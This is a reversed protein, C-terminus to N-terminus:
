KRIPPPFFFSFLKNHNLLSICNMFSKLKRILKTRDICYFAIIFYNRILIYKVFTINEFSNILHTIEKMHNDVDFVFFCKYCYYEKTLGFMSSWWWSRYIINILLRDFLIIMYNYHFFGFCIKSLWKNILDKLVEFCFCMVVKQSAM